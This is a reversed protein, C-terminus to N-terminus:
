VLMVQDMGREAHQMMQQRAREETRLHAEILKRGEAIADRVDAHREDEDSGPQLNAGTVYQFREIRLMRAILTWVNLLTMLAVVFIFWPFVSTFSGGFFPIVQIVGIFHVLSIADMRLLMVFNYALPTAARLMMTANFLLTGEDTRHPGIYYFKSLRANFLPFYTCVSLFTIPIVSFIQLGVPNNRVASSRVIMGLFSVDFEFPLFFESWILLVSLIMSAIGTIRLIRRLFRIRFTWSIKGWMSLHAPAHGSPQHESGIAADLDVYERVTDRWQAEVLTLHRVTRKVHYNLKMMAVEDILLNPDKLEELVKLEDKDYPGPRRRLAQLAIEQERCENQIAIMYNNLESDPDVLSAEEVRPIFARIFELTHHLEDRTTDAEDWISAAHYCVEDRARQLNSMHWLSRPFEVLGYGAMLVLLVLGWTNSAAIALGSVDDWSMHSAARLYIIGIIGVAVFASFLILNFRVSAHMKQKFTFGGNEYYGAALPIILWMLLFSIWFLVSWVQDLTEGAGPILDIPVLFCISFSSLWAMFTLIAVLPPLKPRAYRWVLYATFVVVGIFCFWGYAVLGDPTGSSDLPPYVGTSSSSSSANSASSSSSSDNFADNLPAHPVLTLWDSGASDIAAM